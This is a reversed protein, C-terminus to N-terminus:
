FLVLHHLKDLIFQPFRAMFVDEYEEPTQFSHKAGEGIEIANEVLIDVPVDFSLILEEEGHDNVYDNDIERGKVEEIMSATVTVTTQNKREFKLNFYNPEQCFDVNAAAGLNDSAVKFVATLFDNLFDSGNSSFQDIVTDKMDGGSMRINVQGNGDSWGGIIMQFRTGKEEDDYDADIFKFLHSM